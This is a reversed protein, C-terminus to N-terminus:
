AAKREIAPSAGAKLVSDARPEGAVAPMRAAANRSGGRVREVLAWLARGSLAAVVFVVVLAGAAGFRMLALFQWTLM